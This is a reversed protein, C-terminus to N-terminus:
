QIFQFWTSWNKSTNVAVSLPKQLRRAIFGTCWSARYIGHALEAVTLSSIVITVDGAAERVKRSQGTDRQAIGILRDLAARTTEPRADTVIRKRPRSFHCCNPRM